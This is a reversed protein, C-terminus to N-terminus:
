LLTNQSKTQLSRVAQVIGSEDWAKELTSLKERVPHISSRQSEVVGIGDMIARYTISFNNLHDAVTNYESEGIPTELPKGEALALLSQHWLNLQSLSRSLISIREKGSQVDTIIKELEYKLEPYDGPCRSILADMEQVALRAGRFDERSVMHWVKFAISIRNNDYESDTPNGQTLRELSALFDTHSQTHLQLNTSLCSRVEDILAAQTDSLHRAIEVIDSDESEEPM